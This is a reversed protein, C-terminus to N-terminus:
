VIISRTVRPMNYLKSQSLVFVPLSDRVDVDTGSILEGTTLGDRGMNLLSITLISLGETGLRM